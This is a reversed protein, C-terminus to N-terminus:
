NEKYEVRIRYSIRQRLETPASECCCKRLLSRFEAEAELLQMCKPCDEAHSRLRACEDASLQEDLLQHMDDFFEPCDCENRSVGRTPDTM